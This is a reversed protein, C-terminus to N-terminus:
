PKRIIHGSRYVDEIRRIMVDESFESRVRAVARRGCSAAFDRDDIMRQIAGALSASDGPPILLGERGSELMETVGNVSTAVVPKGAAMAELLVLPFGEWLSPLAFVDWSHLEKRIDSQAGLFAVREAIGLQAARNELEKRLDGDGIIRFSIGPYKRLLEAAAELLHRQGKQVHLRGVTGVVLSRRARKAPARGRAAFRRVDIGNFIVVGRDKRVVGAKVGAHFDHHAVCIVTDTLLLLMRDVTTLLARRFGPAFNLYHIGHYTHIRRAPLFLAALRGYFGATGGHTHLVDPRYEQLISRLRIIGAPNFYGPLRVPFHRIGSQALEDVLYGTPECAVAVDFEKRNLGRALALVHRQGGGISADDIVLLIRRSM